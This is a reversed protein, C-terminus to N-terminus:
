RLADIAPQCAPDAGAAAQVCGVFTGALFTELQDRAPHADALWRLCTAKVVELWGRVALELVEPRADPDFGLAHLAVRTAEDDVRRAIAAVEDDGAASASLLASWSVPHAALYDLYAGLGDALQVLAPADPAPALREVLEDAARTLAAVTLGRRDGFYHYILAASSGCERALDDMSVQDPRRTAFLRLAGQLIQDQREGPALRRRPTM